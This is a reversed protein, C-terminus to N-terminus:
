GVLAKWVVRVDNDLLIFSAAAVHQFLLVRLVRGGRHAEYAKLGARGHRRLLWQRYIHTLSVGSAHILGFLVFNWAIGHWLGILFFTLFLAAVIATDQREAGLQRMLVTLLPTFIYTRFWLGLTINWRGWFDQFNTALYPRNFNEPFSRFGALMAVGFVIDIYGSFDLFLFIYYAYFAIIWDVQTTGGDVLLRFDSQGALMPALVLIKVAGTAVRHCAALAERQNPPALAAVGQMHARWNQVPGAILTLPNILFSCWLVSSFPQKAAPAELLLQIQRFTLYSLGIVGAIGWASSLGSIKSAILIATQWAIATALVLKGAREPRGWLYRCVLWHPGLAALLVFAKRADLWSVAIALGTAALVHAFHRGGGLRGAAVVVLALAAFAPSAVTIPPLATLM